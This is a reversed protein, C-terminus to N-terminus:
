YSVKVVFTADLSQYSVKTGDDVPVKQNQDGRVTVKATVSSVEGRSFVCNFRGYQDPEIPTVLNPKLDISLVEISAGNVSNDTAVKRIAAEKEQKVLACDESKDKVVGAILANVQAALSSSLAQSADDSAKKIKDYYALCNLRLNDSLSADKYITVGGGSIVAVNVPEQSLGVLDSNITMKGDPVASASITGSNDTLTITKYKPIYVYYKTFFKYGMAAYTNVYDLIAAKLGTTFTDKTGVLGYTKGGSSISDTDDLKANGGNKLMDYCAQYDSFQLGASMYSGAADLASSMMYVDTKVIFESKSPSGILPLGWASSLVIAVCIMWFLALVNYQLGRMM